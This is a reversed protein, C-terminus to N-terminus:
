HGSAEFHARVRAPDLARDYIALEDLAGVFYNTTCDCNPGGVTWSATMPPMDNPVGNFATQKGDVFLRLNAGDFTAVVHHWVHLSVARNETANSGFTSGGSWREFAVDLRSVRLTYGARPEYSQHDVVMGYGSQDDYLTPKVWVELSFPRAEAFDLGPPMTVVSTGGLAVASDADAVIAGPQGLIAGQAPYTAQYAGIEDKAVTASRDGFRVYLLPADARVEQEYSGPGLQIDAGCAPLTAWCLAALLAVRCPESRERLIM